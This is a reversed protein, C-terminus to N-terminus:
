FVFPLGRTATLEQLKAAVTLCMEVSEVVCPGAVILLEPGGVRASGIAFRNVRTAGRGAGARRRRAARLRQERAARRPARARRARLRPVPPAARATPEAARPPVAGGPVVSPGAAGRDGGARPGRVEGVDGARALQAAACLSQQARLPPSSARESGAG